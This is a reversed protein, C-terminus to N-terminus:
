REFRILDYKEAFWEVFEAPTDGWSHYRLIDEDSTGADRLDICWDRKLIVDVAALWTACESPLQITDCMRRHYLRWRSAEVM